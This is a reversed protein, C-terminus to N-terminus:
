AASAQGSPAVVNGRFPFDLAPIEIGVINLIALAAAKESGSMEAIKKAARAARIENETPSTWGAGQVYSIFFEEEEMANVQLEQIDTYIAKMAGM